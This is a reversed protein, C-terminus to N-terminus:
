AHAGNKYRAFVPPQNRPPKVLIADDAKAPSAPVAASTGGVEAATGQITAASLEGPPKTSDAATALGNASPHTESITVAIPTDSKRPRVRLLDQAVLSKSYIEIAEDFERDFEYAGMPDKAEFRRAVEKALKHDVRNARLDAFLDSRKQDFAAGEIIIERIANVGDVFAQIAEPSKLLTM